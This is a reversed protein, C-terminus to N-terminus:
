AGPMPAVFLLGSTWYGLLLLVVPLVWVNAVGEAPLRISVALVLIGLAVGALIRIRNRRPLRRPLVAVLTLYGLFIASALQWQTVVQFARSGAPATCLIYLICLTM